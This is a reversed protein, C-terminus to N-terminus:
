WGRASIPHAGNQIFLRYGPANNEDVIVFQFGSVTGAPVDITAVTGPAIDGSDLPPIGAPLTTTKRLNRDVLPLFETYDPTFLSRLRRTTATDNYVRVSNSNIFAPRYPSGAAKSLVIDYGGIAGELGLPAADGFSVKTFCKGSTLTLDPRVGWPAAIDNEVSLSGCVIGSSQGLRDLAVLQIQLDNTGPGFWDQKLLVATRVAISQDGPDARYIKHFVRKKTSLNEIRVDVHDIRAVSHDVDWAVHLTQFKRSKEDALLETGVRPTSRPSLTIDPVDTPIDIAGRREGPALAPWTRLSMIPYLAWKDTPDILVKREQVNPDNELDDPIDKLAAAIPTAVLNSAGLAGGAYDLSANLEDAKPVFASWDASALTGKSQKDILDDLAAIYGDVKSAQAGSPFSYFYPLADFVQEAESGQVIIGQVIIGQVIIGQKVRQALGTFPDEPKPGIALVGLRALVADIFASAATVAAAPPAPAPSIQGFAFRYLASSVPVDPYMGGMTQIPATDLSGEFTKAAALIDKAEDATMGKAQELINLYALMLSGLAIRGWGQQLAITNKLATALAAKNQKYENILSVATQPTPCGFQGNQCDASADRHLEQLANVVLLPDRRPMLRNPHVLGADRAQKLVAEAKTRTPAFSGSKPDLTPKAGGESGGGEDIGGGDVTPNPAPNNQSDSGTCAAALALASLVPLALALKRM